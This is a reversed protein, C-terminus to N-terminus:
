YFTSVLNDHRVDHKMIPMVNKFWVVSFGSLDYAPCFAQSHLDHDLELWVALPGPPLLVLSRRARDARVSVSSPVFEAAPRSSRSVEGCRVGRPTAGGARFFRGTCTPGLWVWLDSSGLVSLADCNVVLAVLEEAAAAAAAASGGPTSVRPASAGRAARMAGFRGAATAAEPDADSADSASASAAWWWGDEGDGDLVGGGLGLGLDAAAPGVEAASSEM